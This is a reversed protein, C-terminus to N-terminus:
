NELAVRRWKGDVEIWLRDDKGVSMKVNNNHEPTNVSGGANVILAMPTAYGGIFFQSNNPPPPPPPRNDATIQLSIKGLPALSQDVPPTLVPNNTSRVASSTSTNALVPASAGAVVASLLGFGKLFGRRANVKEM